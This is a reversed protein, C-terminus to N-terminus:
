VGGKGGREVFGIGGDKGGVGQGGGGQGGGRVGWGKVM